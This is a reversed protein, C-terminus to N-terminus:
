FDEKSLQLSRRHGISIKLKKFSGDQKSASFFFSLIDFKM